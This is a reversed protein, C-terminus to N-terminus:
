DHDILERYLRHIFGRAVVTLPQEVEELISPVQARLYRLGKPLVIGYETLLRRLQNGAAARHKM